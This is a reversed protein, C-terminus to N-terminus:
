QATVAGKYDVSVAKQAGGKKATGQWLGQENQTLASVEAYGASEIAGRAQAETFSNAGPTQTTEGTTPTTDVAENRPAESASVAPGETRDAETSSKDGCAALLTAAAAASLLIRMM